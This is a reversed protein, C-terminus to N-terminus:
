NPTTPSADLASARTAVAHSEAATAEVPAAARQVRTLALVGSCAIAGFAVLGLVLGVTVQVEGLVSIGIVAATLPDIITIAAVVVPAAFRNHARQLLVNAIIGGAAVAMLALLAAPRMFTTAFGDRIVLTVLVKFVTTISGFVLAAVTVGALSAWSPHEGLLPDRVSLATALLGLATAAALIVTVVNLDALPAISAESALSGRMLTIFGINGVACLAIAAAGFAGVPARGSVHAFAASAALAVISVSQVVSVPALALAVFNSSVATGLLLLGAWWRPSRLFQSWRGGSQFVARSQLESGAALLLAGAFAIVLGLAFAGTM